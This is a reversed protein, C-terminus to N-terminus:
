RRVLAARERRDMPKRESRSAVDHADPPPIRSLMWVCTLLLPVFMLGALAPMWRPTVGNQLLWTGVSKMVGDALIFSACLGATMAETMRRGELFGLVMGFVMGLPLGNLFLCVVHLPSPAMAFLVLAAEALAILVLITTARRAPTTEAVM